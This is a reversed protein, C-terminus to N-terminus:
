FSLGLGLTYTHLGPEDNTRFMNTLTYSGWININRYGIRGVVDAKFPVMKFDGKSKKKYKDGSEDHYIIKTKSHLRVGGMIGGSVYMRKNTSAPFQVEMLLPITLYLVKFSSRKVTSMNDYIDRIHSIHIEGAQKTITINDKDFRLRQYEFGLGTVLGFNNRPVLNISYKCLNFQMAFSSSWNLELLEWDKPLNAFNVFGYYFGSWHGKFAKFQDTSPRNGRKYGKKGIILLESINSEQNKNRKDRLIIVDSSDRVVQQRTAIIIEEEQNQACVPLIFLSCLLLTIIKM